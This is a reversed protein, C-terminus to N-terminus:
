CPTDPIKVVARPLCFNKLGAQGGGGETLIVYKSQYNGLVVHDLYPLKRIVHHQCGGLMEVVVCHLSRLLLLMVLVLSVFVALPLLLPSLFLTPM